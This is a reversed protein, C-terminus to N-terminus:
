AGPARRDVLGRRAGSLEMLAGVELILCVEGNGLITCGSIGTLSGMHSIYGSLGKIVTQQQGLIEDVFLCITAAQAELVILIGEDLRPSDPTVGYLDHLRLVPILHERVMVLEQGDPSVTIAQAAPRFSERIALIPLIYTAAGVRLLMGDIIAMTLPIRLVIRTGQGPQSTVDIKGNIKTLNQKVVDMGVGRGSVDTVQDATSFGPLFILGAVERDSLEAGDGALLGRAAAKALIKKRDLGRGDDAITIWVEGEEHSASLTVRGTAPKGKAQREEPPELGHDLSNRILHVLPDTITEIVTKDLETEVGVLELDVKKGCKGSLDHVLRTMRRFLGAVPIMRITMAVEQLEKVIKSMQQAAKNFRDLELGALDPSHLIMNEAIVLEGILNILSDLKDLDVRIDQRRIAAALPAETRPPGAAPAVAQEALAESVQEPTAAGMEVLIEGIPAKQRALALDVDSATVVGREVLIAGLPKKGSSLRLGAPLLDDLLELYLDVGIIEGAGDTAIAAVAGKWVDLLNLLTAAIPAQNALQGQRALDLITEARHSLRELDGYGMFGCNGKFSHLRRFLEHVLEVRAPSKSWDLLLGEVEQLIEDAEQVFRQRMEPTITLILEPPTEEEPAAPEPEPGPAPPPPTARPPPAPAALATANHLDAAVAAAEPASAEDSLEAAVQDLASRIFDCTRCLLDIHGPALLLQGTRVLDLLSEAAHATSALRTLNLFGAGGKISHFLRFIANLVDLQEPPIAEPRVAVERLALIDPELQDLLDRCELVFEAYIELMESTPPLTM